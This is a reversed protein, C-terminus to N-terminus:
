QLFPNCDLPHGNKSYSSLMSSSSSSPELLGSGVIVDLDVFSPYQGEPTEPVSSSFPSSCLTPEDGVLATEEEESFTREPSEGLTDDSGTDLRLADEGADSEALGNSSDSIDEPRALSAESRTVTLPLAPPPPCGLRSLELALSRELEEYKRLVENVASSCYEPPPPIGVLGGLLADEAPCMAIPSLQTMLSEEPFPVSALELSLDPKEQPFVKQGAQEIPVQQVSPVHETAPSSQTPEDGLLKKKRLVAMIERELSDEELSDDHSSFSDARPLQALHVFDVSGVVRPGLAHARAFITPPSSQRSGRGMDTRPRRRPHGESRRMRSDRLFGRRHLVYGFESDEEDFSRSARSLEGSRRRGSEPGGNVM